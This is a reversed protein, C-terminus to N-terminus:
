SGLQFRMAIVFPASVPKKCHMAPAFRLERAAALAAEDLGHGLSDLVKASTVVGQDNVALEIRV